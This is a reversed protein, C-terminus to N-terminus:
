KTSLMVVGDPRRNAKVDYVAELARLFGEVDAAPFRGGIRVSALQPEAIEIRQGSHTSFVTVLDGLTAGALEIMSDNWALQIAVVAASVPEVVVKAAVNAGTRPIRAQHGAGVDASADAEVEGAAATTAPPPTIRVVGETVLVNVAAPEFRIAFATGVARVTVDGVEVLFPRVDKRVAFFVEGRLLRIRRESGSYIESIEAGTRLRAVSGDPLARTTAPAAVLTAVPAIPATSGSQGSRQFLTFAVAIAAAAALGGAAWRSWGARSLTMPEPSRKVALGIKRFMRWSNKAEEFAAAHNPSAELWMKLDVAEAPSLKRDQRVVWNAAAESIAGHQSGDSQPASFKMVDNAVLCRVM